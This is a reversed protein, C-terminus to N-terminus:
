GGGVIFFNEDVAAHACGVAMKYGSLQGVERTVTEVQYVYRVDIAIM